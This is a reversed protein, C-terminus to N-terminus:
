LIYNVITDLTYSNIPIRKDNVIDDISLLVLKNMEAFHKLGKSLYWSRNTHFSEFNPKQKLRYLYVHVKSSSKLLTLHKACITGASEEYLERVACDYFSEGDEVHGGFYEYRQKQSNFGLLFKDKYVVLVFALKTM